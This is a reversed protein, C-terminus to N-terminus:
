ATRSGSADIRVTEFRVRGDAVAQAVQRQIPTLRAGGSKVDALVIEDIRNEHYGVFVILDVVGGVFRVDGPHFPFGPLLPALQEGIQGKLVSRSRDLQEKAQERLARRLRLRWWIERMCFLAALAALLWYVPEM